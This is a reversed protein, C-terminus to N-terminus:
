LSRPPISGLLAANGDEAVAARAAAELEAERELKAKKFTGPPMCAVAAKIEASTAAALPLPTHTQNPTVAGSALQDRLVIMREELSDVAALHYIFCAKTQGQRAVRGLLQAAM